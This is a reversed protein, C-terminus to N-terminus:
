VIVINENKILPKGQYKLFIQAITLVDKQCYIAIRQLNKEEWYVRAVDSGNIDDKPTPINFIASLLALSTYNKYDGFKWLEMTDLHSIEWPKKGASDLINPLPLENIIIRRALYPFDFEKGNHACLLHEKKYYHKNLMESFEILLKKEDDDFFSKIRFESNSFFGISVCIIKGFESYIGARQYLNEATDEENQKIRSAKIDWLKQLREPVKAYTSFQPVTEIDLFLINRINIQELM